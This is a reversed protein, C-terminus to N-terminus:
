FNDKIWDILKKSENDTFKIELFPTLAEVGKELSLTKDGIQIIIAKEKPSNKDCYGKFRSGIIINM